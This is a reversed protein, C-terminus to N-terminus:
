GAFLSCAHSEADAYTASAQSLAASIGELATEVQAQAAQWRTACEAFALQAQGTWSSELAHLQSMMAAVEGRIQGAIAQTHAASAALSASDVVYHAM